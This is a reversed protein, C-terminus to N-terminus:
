EVYRADEDALQGLVLPDVILRTAQPEDRAVTVQHLVLDIAAPVRATLLAITAAIIRRRSSARAAQWVESMVSYGARRPSLAFRSQPVPSSRSGLPCHLM